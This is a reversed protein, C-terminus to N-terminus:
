QPSRGASDRYAGDFQPEALHSPQEAQLANMRMFETSCEGRVGDVLAHGNLLHLFQEAVFFYVSGHM